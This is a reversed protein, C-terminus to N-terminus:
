FLIPVLSTAFSYQYSYPKGWILIKRFTVNVGIIKLNVFIYNFLFLNFAPARYPHIIGNGAIM